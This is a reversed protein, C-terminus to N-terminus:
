KGEMWKRWETDRRRKMTWSRYAKGERAKKRKRRKGEKERRCDVGKGERQVKGKRREGMEEIREGESGGGGKNVKDECANKNTKGEERENERTCGTGKKDKKGKM